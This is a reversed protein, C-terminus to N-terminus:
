SYARGKGAREEKRIEKGMKSGVASKKARQGKKSGDAREKARQEKETDGTRKGRGWGERRGKRM